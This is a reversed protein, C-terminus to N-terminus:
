HLICIRIDTLNQCPLPQQVIVGSFASFDKKESFSTKYETIVTKRSESETGTNDSSYRLYVKIKDVSSEVKCYKNQKLFHCM